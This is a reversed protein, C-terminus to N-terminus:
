YAHVIGFLRLREVAAQLLNRIGKRTEWFLVMKEWALFLWRVPPTGRDPPEIARSTPKPQMSAFSAAM